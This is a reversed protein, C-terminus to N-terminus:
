KSLLGCPSYLSRYFSQSIRKKVLTFLFVVLTFLFNTLCLNLVTPQFFHKTYLIILPNCGELKEKLGSNGWPRAKFKKWILISWTIGILWQVYNRLLIANVISSLFDFIKRFRRLLRCNDLKDVNNRKKNKLIM